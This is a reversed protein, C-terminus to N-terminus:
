REGDFRAFPAHQALSFAFDQAHPAPLLSPRRRPAPSAQTGQMSDPHEHRVFHRGADGAHFADQPDSPSGGGSLPFRHRPAPSFRADRSYLFPSSYLTPHHLGPPAAHFAAAAGPPPYHVSRAAMANAQTGHGKSSFASAPQM